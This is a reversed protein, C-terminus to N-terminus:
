SNKAEMIDDILEDMLIDKEITVVGDKVTCTLTNYKKYKGQWTFDAPEASNFYELLARKAADYMVSASEDLDGPMELKPVGGNHRVAFYMSEGGDNAEIYYTYLEDWEEDSSENPEGFLTLLRGYLLAAAENGFGEEIDSRKPAADATASSYMEYTTKVFTYASYGPSDSKAEGSTEAATDSTVAGQRGGNGGCGCLMATICGALLIATIRKKM